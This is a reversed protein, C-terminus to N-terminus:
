FDIEQKETVAAITLTKSKYGPKSATVTLPEGYAVATPNPRDYRVGPTTARFQVQVRLPELVGFKLEQEATVAAITLTKSKYGPKSATVTLPEGYAVATPNPRDYRVGPTTARFQVQVRLPELVGFKLEQEATVAAITLTKSKYGPKSATVTLPEGYAVATPNPRDYRVGPTTARFQVQVVHLQESVYAELPAPTALAELSPQRPEADSPLSATGSDPQRAVVM